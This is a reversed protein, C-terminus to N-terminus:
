SEVRATMGQTSAPKFSRRFTASTQAQDRTFAALAAMEDIARYTGVFQGASNRITFFQPDKRKM